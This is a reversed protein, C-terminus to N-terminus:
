LIGQFALVAAIVGVGIRYWGFAAPSRKTLYSIMWKVAIFATVGAVALGILPNVWGFYSVIQPGLKIGEFVTAVGLTVLGLLFGFEVAASVSLGMLIGAAMTCLSRSVGPWLAFVQALGIILAHRWTIEDVSLGGESGKKRMAVLIFIGGVVWAGAISPVNFLYQKLRGELLFGILAAPAFAMVLNAFLKLGNKDKGFIGRFIGKIRNFSILLVALIAGLQICIAYADSAEKGEATKGMGMLKQVVLLHGTSSVPLFETIGEVAGLGVAQLATMPERVPALAADPAASFSPTVESDGACLSAAALLTAAAIIIPISTRRM